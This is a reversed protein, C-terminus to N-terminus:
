GNEKNMEALLDEPAPGMYSGGLGWAIDADEAAKAQERLWDVMSGGYGEPLEPPKSPRVSKAEVLAAFDEKSIGLSSASVTDGIEAGTPKAGEKESTVSHFIPSWAYMKTETKAPEAM